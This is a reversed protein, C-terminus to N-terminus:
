TNLQYQIIDGVEKKSTPSTGIIVACGLNNEKDDGFSYRSAIFNKISNKISGHLCIIPMFFNPLIGSIIVGNAQTGFVHSNSFFYKSIHKIQDLPIMGHKFEVLIINETESLKEVLEVEFISYSIKQSGLNMIEKKIHSELNNFIYKCLNIFDNFTTVVDDKHLSSVVMLSLDELENKIIQKKIDFSDIAMLNSSNNVVASFIYPKNVANKILSSFLSVCASLLFSNGTINEIYDKYNEGAGLPKRFYFSYKEIEWDYIFVHPTFKEIFHNLANEVITFITKRNEDSINFSIYADNPSDRFTSINFIMGNSHSNNVAPFLSEGIKISYKEDYFTNLNAIKGELFSIESIEKCDPLQSRCIKIASNFNGSNQLKKIQCMFEEAIM